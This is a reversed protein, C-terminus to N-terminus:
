TFRNRDVARNLKKLFDGKSVRQRYPFDGFFSGVTTQRCRIKAM